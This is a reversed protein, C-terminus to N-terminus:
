RRAADTIGQLFRPCTWVYKPDCSCRSAQHQRYAADVLDGAAPGLETRCQECLPARAVFDLRCRTCTM